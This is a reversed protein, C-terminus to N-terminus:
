LSFIALHPRIGLKMAPEHKLERKVFGLEFRDYGDSLRLVEFM